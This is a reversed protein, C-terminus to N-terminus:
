DCSVCPVCPGGCLVVRVTVHRRVRV